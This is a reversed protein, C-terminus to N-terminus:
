PTSLHNAAEEAETQRKLSSLRALELVGLLSILNVVKDVGNPLKIFMMRFFTPPLLAAMADPKLELDGCIGDLPCWSGGDSDLFVPQRTQSTLVDVMTNM